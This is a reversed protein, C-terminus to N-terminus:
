IAPEALVKRADFVNKGRDEIRGRAEVIEGHAEYHRPRPEMMKYHFLAFSDNGDKLTAEACERLFSIRLGEATFYGDATLNVPVPGNTPPRGYQTQILKPEPPHYRSGQQAPPPMPWTTACGAVTLMVMLGLTGRKM